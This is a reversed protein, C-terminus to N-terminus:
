CPLRVRVRTGVKPVEITVSGGLYAARTRVGRLGIGTLPTDEGRGFGRGDDSVCLELATSHRRLYVWVKHAQAHRVANNVLEAVIRFAASQVAPPLEDLGPGFDTHVQPTSHLNLMDRLASISTTLRNTVSEAPLLVHSLQRVQNYLERLIDETLQGVAAAAPASALAERVAESQWAMHLAAINPGLADHLERALQEREEDQAAILRASHANRQRLHQVRLRANHRLTHRLRGTLLASLVLLELMLGWALPNPYIPNFSTLGLHNLWFIGYGIFFFLYTLAYYAALRQWHRHLLLTILVTWGYGFVLAMLLERAWNLAEVTPLSHRVAWPFLAAYGAVFLVATGALWNGTRHLRPWGGRLRLFLQMIRIGAAGALLMFNYQGVSWLLRYPGAPLLMADLGDEMMLFLTVALVYAVYWLHIRDRLFVFLVLNFLASGMYFGLLWVWHREFPFGMEWALFHETTEIYTPLYIGGTHADVRLYLVAAEGAELAFPFSLSRAPFTRDAAPAWSSAAGLRTFKAEGARRCYLAASDTFNFISWLFRLRQPETNRVPLRMWVRRHMLGLNLPEHWPGPRFRGARWAAEAREPDAPAPGFPETYYRYAESIHVGKPDKLLLTDRLVHPPPTAGVAPCFGTGLGLLLVLM